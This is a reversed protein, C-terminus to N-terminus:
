GILGEDVLTATMMTTMAKTTSGISFMTEPTVPDTGGAEKVGFGHAFAVEGGQVVVVAAGPVNYRERNEEVYAAFKALAEDTLPRLVPTSAPLATPLKPTSTNAATTATTAPMPSPPLFATPTPVPTPTAGGGCAALVLMTVLVM